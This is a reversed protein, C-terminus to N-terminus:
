RNLSVLTTNNNPHKTRAAIVYALTGPYVNEKPVMRRTMEGSTNIVNGKNELLFASLSAIGDLVKQTIPILISPSSENFNYNDNASYRHDGFSFALSYLTPQSTTPVVEVEKDPDELLPVGCSSCLKLYFFTGALIAIIIGLLNTTKKTM